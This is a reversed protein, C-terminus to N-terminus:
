WCRHLQRDQATSMGSQFLFIIWAIPYSSVFVHRRKDHPYPCNFPHLITLLENMLEQLSNNNMGTAICIQVSTHAYVLANTDVYAHHVIHNRKSRSQLNSLLRWWWCVLCVSRSFLFYFNKKKVGWNHLTSISGTRRADMYASCCIQDTQTGLPKDLVCTLNMPDWRRKNLKKTKRFVFLCRFLFRGLWVFCYFCSTSYSM